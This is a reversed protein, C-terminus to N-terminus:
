LTPAGKEGWDIHAQAGGKLLPTGKPVQIDYDDIVVDAAGNEILLIPASSTAARVILRAIHVKPPADNNGAIHVHASSATGGHSTPDISTLTGAEVDSWFRFNRNNRIATVRDLVNGVSKLDLGGDSNDQVVVDRITVDHAAREAAIGDGNWYRDAPMSMQFGSITGREILFQRGSEIHIGEPLDPPANPTAAHTLAFDRITIDELDGRLRIGERAIEVGELHAIVIHRARTDPATEILRYAGSLRQARDQSVLPIAGNVGEADAGPSAAAPAVAALAM